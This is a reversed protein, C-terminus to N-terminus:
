LARWHQALPSVTPTNLMCAKCILTDLGATGYYHTASPLSILVPVQTM